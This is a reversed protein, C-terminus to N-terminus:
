YLRGYRPALRTGLGEGCACRLVCLVTVECMIASPRAPTSRRKVGRETILKLGTRGDRPLFRGTLDELQRVGPELPRLVLVAACHRNLELFCSKGSASVRSVKRADLDSPSSAAKMSNRMPSISMASLPSLLIDLM